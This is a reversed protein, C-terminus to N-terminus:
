NCGVSEKLKNLVKVMALTDLECYRLLSERLRAVEEKDVMSALRAYTQMADGGNQVGNLEKYARAMEPVIAPLVYKISYSGRMNPSYYDKNAFPTMLDKINDHIAMLHESLEPFKAALKRIVGKEFGMNYALLTVDKPIDRVLGCALEYRPDIGEQALFEYHELEGNVNEVHLSYQFPIQMFPSIGNWQPIAQQFTEFDLHYLPYTLTNLFEQIAEDNIIERQELEAKIQIQQSQSFKSVDEIQHFEVIGQNYLTFKKDSRLRSIDFVSYEPIHSWCYSMADCEYPNSCQPGIDIIPENEKDELFSEFHKLYSPINNQLAKVDDSVDIITFLKNLELEDGRVYKNNIHIINTSKIKYGLGNLVYYQVSADDLYVDKVETSSKVEYIEVSGDDNVHLIDIMIFIGDYSFSAEYINKIGSKLYEQTLNLKENFSTSEYPIEVGHPFLRCALAGVVNGTEFIAENSSDPQQLLFSKYKKLWLSKVCQLGRIYQSKSLHM